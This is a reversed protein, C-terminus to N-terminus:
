GHSVVVREVCLRSITWDWGTCISDKWVLAFMEKYPKNCQELLATARIMCNGHMSDPIQTPM